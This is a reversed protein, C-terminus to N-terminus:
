LSVCIVRIRTPWAARTVTSEKGPTTRCPWTSLQDGAEPACNESSGGSLAVPLKVLTTWRMGTLITSSGSGEKPSRNRGPMDTIAVISALVLAAPEVLDEGYGLSLLTM